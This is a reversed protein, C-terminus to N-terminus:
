CHFHPIRVVPGGPFKWLITIKIQNQYTIPFFSLLIYFLLSYLVVILYKISTLIAMTLFDEVLLHQLPHPFFPVRWYQQPSHLNICGSNHLNRIFISISYSQAIGSRPMYESFLMIWFSVHVETSIAPSSIITLVSFCGLHGDVSSHIVFNHPVYICRFIVWGHFLAM